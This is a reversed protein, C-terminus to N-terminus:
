EVCENVFLQHYVIPVTQLQVKLFLGVLLQM